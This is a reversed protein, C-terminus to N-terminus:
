ERLGALELATQRDIEFRLGVVRGGRFEWISHMPDRVTAGSYRGEATQYGAAFVKDPGAERFEEGALRYDRWQALFERMFADVEEIGNAVVTESSDPMFSEFAIEPDFLEVGATMRGQEWEAYVRHVLDINEASM